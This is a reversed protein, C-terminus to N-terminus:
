EIALAVLGLRHLIPVCGVFRRISSILALAVQRLNNLCLKDFFGATDVLTINLCFFRFSSSM